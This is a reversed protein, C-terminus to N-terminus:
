SGEEARPRATWEDILRFAVALLTPGIFVGIFGFALVGGVVGILVLVFPLHAGRSILFPKLVNDISSVVGVGWIALFIAWGVEGKEYLWYTAPIWLMPPGVPVVSLFFTAVALLVAGPVGALLYGILALVAQAIATGLIGYVTGRITAHAVNALELARGGAVREAMRRLRATLLDGDRWFFFVVLTSVLLTFIGEALGAVAVMAWERAPDVLPALARVLQSGDNAFVQWRAHLWGGLVPVTVLWAPPDPLGRDLWERVQQLIPGASHIVAVAGLALPVVLVLSFGMTMVGAALGNRGRLAVRVRCFLPWTALAVIIAWLLASVFPRLVLFCAIALLALAVILVIREIRDVNRHPEL